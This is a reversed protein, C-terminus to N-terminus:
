NKLKKQLEYLTNIAQLPTLDLIDIDKIKELIKKEKTNLEVKIAEKPADFFSLQADEEMVKEVKTHEPKATPNSIPIIPQDNQELALLIENARNILEEPLEALQAVHIGYSKDAPGEKIKHM